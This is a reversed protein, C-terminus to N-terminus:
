GRPAEERQAWLEKFRLLEVVRLGTWTGIWLNMAAVALLLEPFALMLAQIALSSMIGYCAATVALTQLFVVLTKAVGDESLSLALRESTITLIAIPFLTAAGITSVGEVRLLDGVVTLGLLTLM